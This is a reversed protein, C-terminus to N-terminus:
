IYVSATQPVNAYCQLGNGEKCTKNPVHYLWSAFNDQDNPIKTNPTTYFQRESARNHFIDGSDRILNEDFHSKIKKKILKNSTACAQPRDPNEVYENMLVNMFPNEPSPLVCEENSIQDLTVNRNRYSEKKTLLDFLNSEYLAVTLVAVFVMTYLMKPKGTFFFSLISFYIALRMISNLREEINMEPSPFFIYYNNRTIFETPNKYWIQDSLAM